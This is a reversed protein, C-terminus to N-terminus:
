RSRDGVCVSALVAIIPVIFFIFDMWRKGSKWTQAPSALVEPVESLWDFIETQM